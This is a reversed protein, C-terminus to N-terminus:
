VGGCAIACNAWFRAVRLEDHGGHVCAVLGTVITENAYMRALRVARIAVTTDACPPANQEIVIVFAKCAENVETFREGPHKAPRVCKEVDDWVNGSLAHTIRVHADEEATRIAEYKPRTEDTPPHWVFWSDLQAQTM